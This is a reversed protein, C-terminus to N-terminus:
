VASRIERENRPCPRQGSEVQEALKLFRSTLQYGPELIAAQKFAEVAEHSRGTLLYSLGLNLYLSGDNPRGVIALQTLQVSLEYRGLEVAMIAAERAVGPQGPEIELAQKYWRIAAGPRGIRQNIKGLFFMTPWSMPVHNLASRFVRAGAHLRCRSLWSPSESLAVGDVIIQGKILWHALRYRREYQRIDRPRLSQDM